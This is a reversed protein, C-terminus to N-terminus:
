FTWHRSITFVLTLLNLTRIGHHGHIKKDQFGRNFCEFYDQRFQISGGRLDLICRVHIWSDFVTQTGCRLRVVAVPQAVRCLCVLVVHQTVRMDM